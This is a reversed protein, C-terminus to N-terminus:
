NGTFPEESLSVDKKFSLLVVVTKLFIRLDLGLSIHQVYYNDLEFKKEWSISHRGNVQAWGTIGPRVEFRMRQKPSFLKDYEVPLARPGIWSMEGRLINLIQPLEDLNTIRLFNGLWFKRASLSLAEDNTLTRFKWMTFPKEHKGIREHKFFIPFEFSLTFMVILLLILWSFAILILAAFCVDLIPKSYQKYFRSMNLFYKVCLASLLLAFYAFFFERKAAKADNVRRGKRSM